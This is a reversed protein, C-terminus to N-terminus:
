DFSAIHWPIRDGVGSFGTRHARAQLLILSHELRLTVPVDDTLGTIGVDRTPLCAEPCLNELAHVVVRFNGGLAHLRDHARCPKCDHGACM